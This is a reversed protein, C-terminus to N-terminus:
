GFATTVGVSVSSPGGVTVTLRLSRTGNPLEGSLSTVAGDPGFDGGITGCGGGFTFHSGDSSVWWEVDVTTSPDLSALGNKVTRDLNATATATGAPIGYPGLTTTGVPLTMVTM